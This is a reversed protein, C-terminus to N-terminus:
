NYTFFHTNNIKLIYNLNNTLEDFSLSFSKLFNFIQRKDCSVIM